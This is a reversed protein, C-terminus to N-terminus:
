EGAEHITYYRNEVKVKAPLKEAEFYDYGEKLNVWFDYWESESYLAMMEETM